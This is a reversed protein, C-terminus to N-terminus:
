HIMLRFFSAPKAAIRLDDWVREFARPIIIVPTM